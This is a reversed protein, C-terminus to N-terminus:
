KSKPPTINGVPLLLESNGIWLAFYPNKANKRQLMVLFPKDFTLNFDTASLYIMAESDIKTGTEDLKFRISQLALAIPQDNLQPKKSQITHGTLESYSHLIDLDIVPIFLNQSEVMHEPKATNIRKKVSSITDLLTASPPIKALILHTQRDLTKLEVVFDDENKGYLISVQSAMNVEGPNENPLYQAIGFTAVPRNIFQLGGKHFRDFAWKFPLEKHLYAYAIFGSDPAHALLEPPKQGKFKSELEQYIQDLLGDEIFGAKAIYDSSAIDHRSTTRKNLIDAMVSAPSLTVPGKALNYWENWALQFTACWLINKGRIMNQQLHPTVITDKLNGADTRLPTQRTFM